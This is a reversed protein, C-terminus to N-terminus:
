TLGPPWTVAGMASAQDRLPEPEPEATKLPELTMHPHRRRLLADAQVAALRM